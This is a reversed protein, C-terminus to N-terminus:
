DQLREHTREELLDNEVTSAHQGRQLNPIPRTSHTCSMAICPSRTPLLTYCTTTTHKDIMMMM